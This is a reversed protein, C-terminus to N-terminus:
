RQEGRTPITNETILKEIAEAPIRV